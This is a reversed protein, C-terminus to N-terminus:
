GKNESSFVAIGAAEATALEIASWDLKGRGQDLADQLRLFLFDAVPMPVKAAAAAERALRIDKMGLELAFGAQDYAREALIRGYNQYIPCAFSANAFFDHISQRELGSKECLAMAEAMAEIASLIMFNGSLKVINAAYPSDGFEHIGQGLEDLIPKARARAAETGSLCIWLKRAAAAEPRGFVPAAVFLSGRGAHRAELNHSTAPSVTSMSIHLGGPGLTDVFGEAGLTVEELAADNSLMTIVIGGPIVAQAPSDAIRAGMAALAEAKNRSRNFVTVAHGGALLNRAIPGGMSGLGIVSVAGANM